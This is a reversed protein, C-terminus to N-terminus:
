GLDQNVQYYYADGNYSLDMVQYLTYTEGEKVDKITVTAEGTNDINQAAMVSIPVVSMAALSAAMVGSAIKKMKNM